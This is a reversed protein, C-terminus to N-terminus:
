RRTNGNDYLGIRKSLEKMTWLKKRPQGKNRGHQITLDAQQIKDFNKEYWDFNRMVNEISINKAAAVEYIQTTVNVDKKRVKNWMRAVKEPEYKNVSDYYPRIERMFKGFRKLENTDKIKFGKAKLTDLRAKDAEMAGEPTSEKRDLWSALERVRHVLAVKDTDKTVPTHVAEAMDTLREDDSMGAAAFARERRAFESRFKTYAARLEKESFTADLRYPSMHSMKQRNYKETM